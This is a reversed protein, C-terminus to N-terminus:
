LLGSPHHCKTNGGDLLCIAGTARQATLRYRRHRSTTILRKTRGRATQSTHVPQTLSALGITNLLYEGRGDVIVTCVFQNHRTAEDHDEQIQGFEPSDSMQALTTFTAFCKTRNAVDKGAKFGEQILGSAITPGCGFLVVFDEALKARVRNYYDRISEVNAKTFADIRELEEPSTVHIAKVFEQEEPSTERNTM